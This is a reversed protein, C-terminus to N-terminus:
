ILYKKGVSETKWFSIGVSCTPSQFSLLMDATWPHGQEWAIGMELIQDSTTYLYPPPLGPLDSWAHNHWNSQPYVCPLRQGVFFRSAWEQVILRLAPPFHSNNSDPVAGQTDVRQRSSTDARSWIEWTKGRWLQMSCTILYQLQSRGPFPRPIAQSHCLFSALEHPCRRSQGLQELRLLFLM